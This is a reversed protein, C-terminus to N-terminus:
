DQSGAKPKKKPPLTVSYGAYTAGKAGFLEAPKAALIAEAVAEQVAGRRVAGDGRFQVTVLVEVERM